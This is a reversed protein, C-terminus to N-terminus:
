KATAPSATYAIGQNILAGVKQILEDPHVPKALMEFDYGRSRADDLMDASVAQGSFLLIRSGPFEKRIAIAMEVGNVGPMVVDSIVLNPRMARYRELGAAGDYAVEVIYEKSRLILALTDAIRKEDDVVLISRRASTKEALDQTETRNM